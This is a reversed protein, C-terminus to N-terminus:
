SKDVNNSIFSSSPIGQQCIQAAYGGGGWCNEKAEDRSTIPKLLMYGLREDVHCTAYFPSFWPIAGPLVLFRIHQLIRKMENQELGYQLSSDSQVEGKLVM